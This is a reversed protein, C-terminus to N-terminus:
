HVDPTQMQECAINVAGGCHSSFLLFTHRLVFKHWIYKQCALFYRVSSLMDSHDSLLCLVLFVALFSIRFSSTPSCVRESLPHSLFFVSPEEQLHTSWTDDVLNCKYWLMERCFIPPFCFLPTPNWLKLFVVEWSKSVCTDCHASVNRILSQLAYGMERFIGLEIEIINISDVTHLVGFSFCVASNWYVICPTPRNYQVVMESLLTVQGFSTFYDIHSSTFRGCQYSLLLLLAM